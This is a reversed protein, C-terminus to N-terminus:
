PLLRTILLLAKPRVNQFGYQPSRVISGRFFAAELGQMMRNWLPVEVRTAIPHQKNM